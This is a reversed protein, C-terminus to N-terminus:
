IPSKSRIAKVMKENKARKGKLRIANQTQIFYFLGTKNNCTTQIHM